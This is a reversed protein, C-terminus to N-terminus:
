RFDTKCSGLVKKFDQEQYAVFFKDDIDYEFEHIGPKLGVFAIDFNRKSSM